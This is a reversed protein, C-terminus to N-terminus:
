LGCEAGKEKRWLKLELRLHEKDTGMLKALADMRASSPSYSGAEWAQVTHQSVGLRLALVTQTIDRGARYKAIPNPDIV